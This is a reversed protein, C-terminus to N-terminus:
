DSTKLDILTRNHNHVAEWGRKFEPISFFLNDFSGDADAIKLGQELREALEIDHKNVFLYYGAKYHLMLRKEIVFDGVEDNNAESWIEYAGRSMYDFRKSGLMRLLAEYNVSTVVPLGNKRFIETDRWHTGSGAVFHSLGERTEVGDFREQEGDRILLFRYENLNKLLPFKVALFRSERESNTTSWIVSVQEGKELIKRLREKEVETDYIVTSYPGHSAVTKELALEILPKFYTHNQLVVERAHCTLSIGFLLLASVTKAPTNANIM